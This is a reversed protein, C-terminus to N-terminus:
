PKRQKRPKAMNWTLEFIQKHFDTVKTNYIEVGFIEGEHWNYTATVDNYIDMQISVNLSTSPIYRGQFTQSPSPFQDHVDAIAKKYEDSYIDRFHLKKRTFAEKWDELFERGVFEEIPRYTFGVVEHKARLTHWILQRLGERGRYYQVKTEPHEQGLSAFVEQRIVPLLIEMDHTNRKHHRVLQELQSVDSAKVLHRYEDIIEEVLGKDKLLEVIRYVQTRSVGSARSLELITLTGRAILTEYLHTEEHTLGLHSLFTRLHSSM